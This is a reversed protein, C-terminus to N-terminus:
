VLDERRDETRSPAASADSVPAANRRGRLAAWAGLGAVPGWVVLWLWAPEHWVGTRVQMWYVVYTLPLVSVLAVGMSRMSRPLFPLFPVLWLAYWPHVTPSLLLVTGFVVGAVGAPERIWRPALLATGGLTLALVARATRPGLGVRILSSYFCDNFHWNEAYTLFGTWVRGGVGLHPVFLLLSLAAGFALGLRQRRDRWLLPALFVSMPKIQASLGFLVGAGPARRPSAALAFAGLTLALGIADVHGSGASEWIALPCLGHYAALAPDRGSQKLLWALLGFAVFDAALMSVRVGGPRPWVRDQARFLLQAGPPYITPVEPHNVRPWIEDDRLAELEPAEPAYRFPDIGANAVRGDWLYRFLDDSLPEPMLALLRALLAGAAIVAFPLGRGRESFRSLLIWALTAAAVGLIWTPFSRIPDACGAAVGCGVVWLIVLFVRM